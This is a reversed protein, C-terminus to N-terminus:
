SGEPYPLSLLTKAVDSPTVRRFWRGHFSSNSEGAGFCARAEANSIGFYEAASSYVNTGDRLPVDGKRQGPYAWHWGDYAERALWGLACAKTGCAWQSMDFVQRPVRSWVKAAGERRRRYMDLTGVDGSDFPM